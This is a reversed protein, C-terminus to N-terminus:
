AAPQVGTPKAHSEGDKPPQYAGMTGTLGPLGLLGAGLAIIAASGQFAGWVVLLTGLVLPAFLRIVVSVREPSPSM